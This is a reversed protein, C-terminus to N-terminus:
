KVIIGIPQGECVHSIAFTEINSTNYVQDDIKVSPFLDSFDEKVKGKMKRDINNSVIFALEGKYNYKRESKFEVM